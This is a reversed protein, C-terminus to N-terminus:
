TPVDDRVTEPEGAANAGRHSEALLYGGFFPLWLIIPYVVWREIGGIGISHAIVTDDGLEGVVLAVLSLVGLGLSMWRFPPATVKVVTVATLASFVFAVMAALPHPGTNGPFVGVLLTGLGFLSSMTLLVGHRYHRWTAWAAVLVLVGALILTVDFITAAPQTIISHPPRTAGLDSIEQRTSYHRWVPYKTEATIIGMLLVLGASTFCIGALAAARESRTTTATSM